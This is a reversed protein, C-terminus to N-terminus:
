ALEFKITVKYKQDQTLFDTIGSLCGDNRELLNKIPEPLGVWIGGTPKDIFEAEFSVKAKTIQDVINKM